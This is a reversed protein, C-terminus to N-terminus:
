RSQWLPGKVPSEQEEGIGPRFGAMVLPAEDLRLCQVLKGPDQAITSFEPERAIIRAVDGPHQSVQQRMRLKYPECLCRGVPPLTGLIPRRRAIFGLCDLLPALRNEQAELPPRPM